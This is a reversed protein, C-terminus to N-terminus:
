IRRDGAWCGRTSRSWSQATGREAGGEIYGRPRRRLLNMADQELQRWDLTRAPRHGTMGRLYIEYQYNAYPVEDSM